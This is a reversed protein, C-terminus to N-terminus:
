EESEKSQEEINKTVTSSIRAKTKEDIKYDVLYKVLEENNYPATSYADTIYAEARKPYRKLWKHLRNQETYEEIEQRNAEIAAEYEARLIPDKIAQSDITGPYGMVVAVANPSLIVQNPDWDPDISDLLRQWAHLRMEVDKKRLGEWVQGKPASPGTMLTLAHGILELETDISIELPKDLASLAYQRAVEYRRNEKFSGSSLPGCVEVMLRAYNEKNKLKWKVQLEDAFQEYDTLSNNKGESFSKEMARIRVFDQKFEQKEVSSVEKNASFITGQVFLLCMFVIFTKKLLM